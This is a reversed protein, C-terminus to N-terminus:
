PKAKAEPLSSLLADLQQEAEQPKGNQVLQQIERAKGIIEDPPQGGSARAEIVSKLREFKAQLRQPLGDPGGGAQPQPRLQRAKELQEPTLTNRLSLMLRFQALKMENEQALMARLKEETQAVDPKAQHLAEQFARVREELQSKLTEFKAPAEQMIAQIDHFQSENLGLAERQSILFDPPFFEAEIPNPAASARVFALALIAFLQITTKM